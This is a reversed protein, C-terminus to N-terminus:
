IPQVGDQQFWVWEVIDRKTLKSQYDKLMKVHKLMALDKM